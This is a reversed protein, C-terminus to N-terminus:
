EVDYSLIKWGGSNNRTAAYIKNTKENVTIYFAEKDLKYKSIPKGNWDFVLVLDSSFSNGKGNKDIMKKDTYLAYVYKHNSAIDIYGMPSQTDPLVRYLEGDNTPESKPNRLRISKIQSIKENNLIEIFDINSSYNISYVFKNQTPHKRLVGQNSLFKHYTNYIENQANFINIGYDITNSNKDFLAFQYDNKYTGAGLFLSDNLPIVQSFFAEKIKYKALMLPNYNINSHLSDIAFKAILGTNDYFIYFDQGNLEGCCGLPIEEPGQGIKGFRGICEEKHLNFLTFSRGSHYDLVILSSDCSLLGEIQALSDENITCENGSIRKEVSFFSIPSEKTRNSCSVLLFFLYIFYLKKMDFLLQARWQWLANYFM